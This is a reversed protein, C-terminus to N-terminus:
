PPRKVEAEYSVDGLNVPKLLRCYIRSGGNDLLNEM